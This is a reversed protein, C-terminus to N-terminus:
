IHLGNNGSSLVFVGSILVTNFCEIRHIIQCKCVCVYVYYILHMLLCSIWLELTNKEVRLLTLIYTKIYIQILAAVCDAHTDLLVTIFFFSFNEERHIKWKSM